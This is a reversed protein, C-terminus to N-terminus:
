FLWWYMTAHPLVCGAGGCVIYVDCEPADDGGFPAESPSAPAKVSILWLSSSVPGAVTNTLKCNAEKASDYANGDDL